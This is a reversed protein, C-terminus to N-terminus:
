QPTKLKAGGSFELGVAYNLGKRVCYRVSATGSLEPHKDSKVQVYTRVEIRDPIIISMGCESLDSTIAVAYNERGNEERWYVRM